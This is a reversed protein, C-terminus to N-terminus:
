QDTSELYYSSPPRVGIDMKGYVMECAEMNAVSEEKGYWTRPERKKVVDAFAGLQHMFTTWWVEGKAKGETFGYAKEVRTEGGSKVTIAHYIHAIMFYSMTVTGTECQVSVEFVPMPPIFGLTFPSFMVQKLTATVNDPLVLQVESEDDAKPSPPTTKYSASTVSTPNSSSMNRVMDMTYSGIDMMAGRGQEFSESTYPTIIGAPFIMTSKVHKVAGLEGSEVIQKVRQVAPHYRTHMGEVLTLGKQEALEHMKRAEDATNAIPKEVLVHKGAKLAKMSWEYHMSNPLPIYVADVNPDDILAQYCESGSHVKGIGHKKAFAEVKPPSRGAVAYVVVEAHVKSPVIIADVSLAATSLIGFKIVQDDAAKPAVPPNSSLRVRKLLAFFSSM